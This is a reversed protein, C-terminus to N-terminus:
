DGYNATYWGKKNILKQFQETYRFGDRKPCGCCVKEERRHFGHKAFFPDPGAEPWWSYLSIMPQWVYVHPGFDNGPCGRKKKPRKKNKKRVRVYDVLEDEDWFADEM